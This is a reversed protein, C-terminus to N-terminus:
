APEALPAARAKLTVVLEDAERPHRLRHKNLHATRPDAFLAEYQTRRRHFTDWAWRIPHEKDMWRRFLEKNGTGPWLETKSVARLFSRRIVRRMVLPREYDLWVLDTAKPLIVDQAVGYNGDTVWRERAIAARIKGLFADPDAQHLGRWGPEWNLADLEVRELGLELALRRGLTSKGSGSSGIISIRM